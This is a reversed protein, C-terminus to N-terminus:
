IKDTVFGLGYKLTLTASDRTHFVLFSGHMTEMWRSLWDALFKGGCGKGSGLSEFLRGRKAKERGLFNWIYAM